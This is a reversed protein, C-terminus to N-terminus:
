RATWRAAHQGDPLADAELHDDEEGAELLDWALEVFGGLEVAGGAPLPEAEGLDNSLPYKSRSHLYGPKASYTPM